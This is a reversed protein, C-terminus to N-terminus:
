AWTLPNYWVKKAQSMKSVIKQEAEIKELIKTKDFTKLNRQRQIEKELELIIDSGEFQPNLDPIIPKHLEPM